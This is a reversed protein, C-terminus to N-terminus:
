EIVGNANEKAYIINYEEITLVEKYGLSLMWDDVQPKNKEFVEVMVVPNCAQLTQRAGKLVELEFGEVDIKIFDLQSFQFSDITVIEIGANDGTADDMREVANMGTNALTFNKERGRGMAEGAAKKYLFVRDELKNLVVNKQLNEFNLSNPEFCHVAKANLQSCYFLMHNGINAGVELINSFSQYQKKLLNLTDIEYFNRNQFIIKQIHDIYFLPLYIKLDGILLVPNQLFLQTNLFKIDAALSEHYRIVQNRYVKVTIIDFIKKLFKKM